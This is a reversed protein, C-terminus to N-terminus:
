TGIKDATMTSHPLPSPLANAASFYLSWTILMLSRDFYKCEPLLPCKHKIYNCDQSIDWPIGYRRTHIREIQIRDLEDM